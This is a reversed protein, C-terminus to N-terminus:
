VYVHATPCQNACLWLAPKYSKPNLTIRNFPRLNGYGLFGLGEVLIRSYLRLVKKRYVRSQLRSRQAPDNARARNKRRVMGDLAQTLDELADADRGLAARTQGRRKWAEHLNPELQLSRSFDEEAAELMRMM